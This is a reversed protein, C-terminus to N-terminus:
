FGARELPILLTKLKNELELRQLQGTICVFARKQKAEM